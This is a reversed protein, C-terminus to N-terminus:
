GIILLIGMGIVTTLITVPIGVRAYDWFGIEVKSRASEVVIINAVSGLITLNGAFTTALAMVKWMLEPQAFNAIWKGAVLVFPVNSFVNSGLVSLFAFSWAQRANSAGFFGHLRHYIQDPLGTGNLGEVVVFLAAFFVLLHFDVLKLVEHTDRRAVVMLVAGGTLATWSLDLGSLFGIFVLGLVICTWILLRRDLASARSGPRQIAARKLTEAFAWRLIAYEIALGALAVPLLSASFRLFPIRSMHGIIMNQPNGVLTAVSGLNASMALGLLYPTLPLQGRAVVAVVLPTLMLCVSDNVLLASLIGSTLILSLLLGQPSSARRLIWGAAWEFFGALYLYASIIMMGLLLVLTDYDVARYAQAPTMVGCAVMLVTGLLAAAPRNLPLVNLRRGSILLYTVCFIVLALLEKPVPKM